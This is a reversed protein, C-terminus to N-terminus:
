KAVLDLYLKEWQLSDLKNNIALMWLYGTADGISASTSMGFPINSVNLCSKEKVAIVAKKSAKTQLVYAEVRARGGGSWSFCQNRFLRRLLSTSLCKAQNFIARYSIYFM